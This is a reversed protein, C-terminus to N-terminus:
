IQTPAEIPQTLETVRWSYGCAENTCAYEATGDSTDVLDGVTGCKPCYAKTQGTTNTNGVDISRM